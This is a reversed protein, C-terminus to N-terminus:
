SSMQTSTWFFTGIETRVYHVPVCRQRQGSLKNLLQEELMENADNQDLEESSAESRIEELSSNYNNDLIEALTKRTCSKRKVIKLIPKLVKRLRRVPSVKGSDNSILTSNDFKYERRLFSM